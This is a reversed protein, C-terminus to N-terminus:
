RRGSSQAQNARPAANQRHWAFYTASAATYGVVACGGSIRCQLNPLTLQETAESDSKWLLTEQLEAAEIALAAALNRPPTYFQAWDPADRFELIASLLAQLSDAM